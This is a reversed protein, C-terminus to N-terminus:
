RYISNKNNEQKLERYRKTNTIDIKGTMMEELVWSSVKVDHQVCEM